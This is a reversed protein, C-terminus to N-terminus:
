ELFTTESNFVVLSCINTIKVNGYSRILFFSIAFFLNFKSVDFNSIGDIFKLLSGKLLLIYYCCYSILILQTLNNVVQIIRETDQSHCPIFPLNQKLEDPDDVFRRIDDDTFM